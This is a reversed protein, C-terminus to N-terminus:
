TMESLEFNSREVTKQFVLQFELFTGAVTLKSSKAM